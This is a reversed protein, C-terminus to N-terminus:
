RVTGKFDKLHHQLPNLLSTYNNTSQLHQMRRNTIQYCGMSDTVIEKIEPAQLHAALQLVAVIAMLEMPHVSQTGIASGDKM